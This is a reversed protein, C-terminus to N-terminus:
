LVHQRVGPVPAAVEEANRLDDLLLREIRQRAGIDWHGRAEGNVLQALSEAPALQRRGLDRACIERADLREIPLDLREERDRRVRRPGRSPTGTASFSTRQVRPM